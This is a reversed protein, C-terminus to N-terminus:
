QKLESYVLETYMLLIQEIHDRELSHPQDRLWGLDEEISVKFAAKTLEMVSEGSQSETRLSVPYDKEM